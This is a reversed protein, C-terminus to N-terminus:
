FWYINDQEDITGVQTNGSYVDHNNWVTYEDENLWFSYHTNGNADPADEADEADSEDSDIEEHESTADTEDNFDYLGIMYRIEQETYYAEQDGILISSHIIQAEINGVITILQAYEETSLM